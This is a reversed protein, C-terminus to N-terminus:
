RFQNFVNNTSALEFKTKRQFIKIDDLLFFSKKKPKLVYIVM